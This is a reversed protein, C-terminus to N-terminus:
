EGGLPEVQRQSWPETWTEEGQETALNKLLFWAANIRILM